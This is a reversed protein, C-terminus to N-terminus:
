KCSYKGDYPFLLAQNVASTIKAAISTDRCIAGDIFDVLDTGKGGRDWNMVRDSALIKVVEATGLAIGDNTNAQEPVDKGDWLHWLAYAAYSEDIKQTQDATSQPAVIGSKLGYTKASDYNIWFLTNQQIDWFMPFPSGLWNSITMTAFFSAYGESFAFAPAIPQGYAHPGGPMNKWFYNKATYHGFEHLLVPYGWSEPGGSMGGIFISHDLKATQMQQPLSDTYCAGCSWGLGPM